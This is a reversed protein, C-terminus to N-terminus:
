ETDCTGAHMVSKTIHLRIHPHAAVYDLIPAAAPALAHASDAAGGGKPAGAVGVSASSIKRMCTIFMIATCSCMLATNAPDQYFVSRASGEEGALWWGRAVPEWDRKM